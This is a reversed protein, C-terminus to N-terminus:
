RRPCARAASRSGGPPPTSSSHRLHRLDGPRHGPRGGGVRRRGHADPLPQRAALGTQRHLGLLRQGRRGRRRRGAARTRDRRHLTTGGVAVSTQLVAPFQATTFGYDGSSVVIPSAPIRTTSAASARWAPSSTPATATRCPRRGSGSPPTRRSASPSAPRPLRGRRAPDLLEPLGGVGRRPRPLDRSGLRSRPRAATGGARAPEGQPLLREGDHLGAAEVARPLCRSRGRREPQRLRGRHRRRGHQRRHPPLGVHHRGAAARRDTAARRSASRERSARARGRRRLLHGPRRVGPAPGVVHSASSAAPAAQAPSAVLAAAASTAVVLWSRSPRVKVM